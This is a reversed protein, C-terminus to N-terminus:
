KFLEGNEYYTKNDLLTFIVDVSEYGISHIYKTIIGAMKDQVEQGRDFCRVDVVPNGDVFEGDSIYRSQTVEISFYERPCQAAQQLDDILEKSIKRAKDMDIARLTLLPM